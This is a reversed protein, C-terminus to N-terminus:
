GVSYRSGALPGSQRLAHLARECLAIGDRTLWVGDPNEEREAYGLLHLSEVCTAVSDQPALVRQALATATAGDAEWLASLVLGEAPDLGAAGLLPRWAEFWEAVTPRLRVHVPSSLRRPTHM